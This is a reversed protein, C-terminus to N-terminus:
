EEEEWPEWHCRGPIYPIGHAEWAAEIRTRADLNAEKNEEPKEGFSGVQLVFGYENTTDKIIRLKAADEFPLGYRPELVVESGLSDSHNDILNQISHEIGKAGGKLQPETGFYVERNWLEVALQLGTRSLTGYEFEPKKEKKWPWGM